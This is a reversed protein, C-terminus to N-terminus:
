PATVLDARERRAEARGGATTGTALAAANDPRTSTSPDAGPEPRLEWASAGSALITQVLADLSVGQEDALRVLKMHRAKPARANFMGSYESCGQPPPEPLSQGTEEMLELFGPVADMLGSVAAGPTDGYGVVRRPVSTFLAESGGRLDEPLPRVSIPCGRIAESNAM